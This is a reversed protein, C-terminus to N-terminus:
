RIGSRQMTAIAAHIPETQPKAAKVDFASDLLRGFATITGTLFAIEHAQDACRRALQHSVEIAADRAAIAEALASPEHVLATM